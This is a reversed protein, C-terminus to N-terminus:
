SSSSRIPTGGLGAEESILAGAPEIMVAALDDKCRDYLELFGQATTSRSSTCRARRSSRPDRQQRVHLLRARLGALWPLRLVPDDDERHDAAGAQAAVTCVDSGNKGFVVMEASPLDEVLMQTVEMELPHPFPVVAGTDLVDAIAAQIRDDAHGLLTSGWGMTYDLFEEGDADWM